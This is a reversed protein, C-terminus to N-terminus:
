IKLIHHYKRDREILSKINQESIGLEILLCIEVLFKLQQTLKYLENGKKAKTELSLDYHILYNRTNVANEVFLIKDSIIPNLFEKCKELIEELRKRLSYENFYRMRQKLSEKFGEEIDEPIDTVLIEYYSKYKEESVYLGGFVRRHYSEIAQILSLFQFDLYLSPSYIVAFYLDYVPKLFEAKFFWNRLCSEFSSAIDSYCFFMDFPHLKKTFDPTTGLRYFVEIDNLITKGDRLETKCNSNKGKIELPYVARGIGLSLLNQLHYLFRSHYENFDLPSRPTIELYTTQVLEIHKLRDGGDRFSYTITLDFDELKVVVKDPFNYNADYKVLHQSKDMSFSFKIGTIGTWEELYSYNVSISEFVLDGERQFHHGLFVINAFYSTLMMVPMGVTMSMNTRSEVCKYLTVAKGGAFGLVIDPGSVDSLDPLDKFSGILDLFAGEISDYRLTGAIKIDPKEPLWWFGDLEFNKM